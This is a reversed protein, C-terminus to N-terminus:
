KDDEEELEEFTFSVVNAPVIYKDLGPICLNLLKDSYYSVLFRSKAELPGVFEHENMDTTSVVIKVKKSM